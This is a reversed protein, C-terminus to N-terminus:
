YKPSPGKCSFPNSEILSHLAVGDCALSMSVAPGIVVPSHWHWMPNGELSHAKNDLELEVTAKTRCEEPIGRLFELNRM